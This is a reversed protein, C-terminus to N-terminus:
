VVVIYAVGSQSFSSLPRPLILPYQAVWGIPAEAM